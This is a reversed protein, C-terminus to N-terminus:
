CAQHFIKRRLPPSCPLLRAAAAPLPDQHQQDRREGREPQHLEEEARHRPFDARARRDRVPDAEAREVPERATQATMDRNAAHQQVQKGARPARRVVEHGREAARGDQRPIERREAGGGGDRVAVLKRDRPFHSHADDQKHQQRPTQAVLVALIAEAGRGATEAAAHHHEHCARDAENRHQMRLKEAQEADLGVDPVLRAHVTRAARHRLEQAVGLEHLDLLRGVRRRFSGRFDGLAGCGVRSRRRGDLVRVDKGDHVFRPRIELIEAVYGEAFARHVVDLAQIVRHDAVGVGRHEACTRACAFKLEQRAIRHREQRGAADRILLVDEAGGVRERGQELPVAVFGACEMRAFLGRPLAVRGIRAEAEVRELAALLHVNRLGLLVAVHAIVRVELLDDPLKLVLLLARREEEEVDGDLVVARVRDLIVWGLDRDLVCRALEGLRLLIQRERVLGVLGEALEDLIELLLGLRGDDDHEAVMLRRDFLFKEVHGVADRLVAHGHLLVHILELHREDDPRVIRQRALLRADRAQVEKRLVHQPVCADPRAREARIEPVEHFGDRRHGKRAVEVALAVSVAM